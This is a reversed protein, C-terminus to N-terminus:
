AAEQKTKVTAWYVENPTRYDLGQHRRRMNYFEFYAGLGIRAEPISEYAKIYVEEYKVSRWLREIFVNDVWRGRGDMSIAIGNALLVGTFDESTFQTGQDVNFIDPTGYRSIAEELADVCFSADLTNSLKWALVRRSAWDMVAVLYCFGRKMPLYTIDACWVHNSSTIELGRLLYPYIKHGPHPVSTKKAPSIVRIGMTRMLTAVRARGVNFGRDNLENRMRRIGYFPLELHIKDIEAMLALSTASMPVHRYYVSSRSIGLLQAQRKISLPSESEIM